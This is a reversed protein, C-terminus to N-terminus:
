CSTCVSACSQAGRGQRACSINQRIHGPHPETSEPIQCKSVCHKAPCPRKCVRQRVPKEPPKSLAGHDPVACRQPGAAFPMQPNVPPNQKREGQARYTLLLSCLAHILLELCRSATWAPRVVCGADKSIHSGRGPKLAFNQLSSLGPFLTPWLAPIDVSPM